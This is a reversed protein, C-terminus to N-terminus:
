SNHVLLIVQHGKRDGRRCVLRGSHEKIDFMYSIKRTTDTIIWDSLTPSVHSQRSNHKLTQYTVFGDSLLAAEQSFHLLRVVVIHVREEVVRCVVLYGCQLVHSSFM